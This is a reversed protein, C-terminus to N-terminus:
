SVASSWAFLIGYRIAACWIQTYSKMAQGVPLTITGGVTSPAVLIDNRRRRMSHLLGWSTVAQALEMNEGM